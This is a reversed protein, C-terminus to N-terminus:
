YGPKNTSEPLTYSESVYIPRTQDLNVKALLQKEKEIFASPNDNPGRYGFQFKRPVNKSNQFKRDLKRVRRKAKELYKKKQIRNM